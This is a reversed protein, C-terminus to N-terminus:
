KLPTPQSDGNSVAQPYDRQWDLETRIGSEVSTDFTIKDAHERLLQAATREAAARGSCREHAFFIEEGVNQEDWRTLSVWAYWVGKGSSRAKIRELRNEAMAALALHLEPNGDEIARRRAEHAFGRLGPQSLRGVQHEILFFDKTAESLAAKAEWTLAPPKPGAKLVEFRDAKSKPWIDAAILDLDDKTPSWRREQDYRRRELKPALSVVTANTPSRDQPLSLVEAISAHLSEQISGEDDFELYHGQAYTIRDPKGEIHEVFIDLARQRTNAYQPLFQTGRILGEILRRSMSQPRGQESFLYFRLSM